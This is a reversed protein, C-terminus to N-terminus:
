IQVGDRVGNGTTGDLCKSQTLSCEDLVLGTPSLAPYAERTAIVGVSCCPRKEVAEDVIRMSRSRARTVRHAYKEVPVRDPRHRAPCM